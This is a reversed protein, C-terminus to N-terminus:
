KAKSRRAKKGRTAFGVSAFEEKEEKAKAEKAERNLEEVLRDKLGNAYGLHDIVKELFRMYEVMETHMGAYWANNSELQKYTAKWPKSASAITPSKM